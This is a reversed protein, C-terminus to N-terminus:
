RDIRFFAIQSFSSSVAKALEAIWIVRELFKRNGGRKQILIVPLDRGEGWV